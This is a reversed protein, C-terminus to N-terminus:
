GQDKQLNMRRRAMGAIGILGTGFLVMTAPEPVPAIDDVAIVMDQFDRDGGYLQDDLYIKATYQDANYAILVHEIDTDVSTGDALQNFQQDAYWVYDIETDDEGGTYVEFYFGFNIDFDTWDANDNSDIASVQWVGDNNRFFVSQEPNDQYYNDSDPEQNKDFIKFMTGVTTPNSVDDVTYIGFSSEYVALELKLEFIANGDASAGTTNDTITWYDNGTWEYGEPLTPLASAVGAWIVLITFSAIVIKLLNTVM